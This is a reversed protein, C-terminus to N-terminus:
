DFLQGQKGVTMSPVTTEQFLSWFLQNDTKILSARFGYHHSFWQEFDRQYEGRWLGSWELAPLPHAMDAGILQEEPIIKLRMQVLPLCFIMTVLAIFAHKMRRTGM